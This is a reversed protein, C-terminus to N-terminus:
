CYFTKVSKVIHQLEADELHYHMPLRVLRDTYMDSFKLVRGDHLEKYFDSSHLSIYHSVAHIQLARLHKILADREQGDKAVLFFMHANNTNGEPVIPLSLLGQEELESLEELYFGWVKLRQDQIKEM